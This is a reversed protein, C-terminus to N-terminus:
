KEKRERRKIILKNIATFLLFCNNHFDVAEASISLLLYTHHKSERYKLAIDPLNLVALAM